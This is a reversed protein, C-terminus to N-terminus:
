QEDRGTINRDNRRNADFCNIEERKGFKVKFSGAKNFKKIMKKLGKVSRSGYNANRGKLSQFKKLVTFAYEVNKYFLKVLVCRDKVSIRMVLQESATLSCIKDRMKAVFEIRRKCSQRKIKM